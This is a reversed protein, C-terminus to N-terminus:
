RLIKDQRCIKLAVQQIAPLYEKLSRSMPFLVALINTRSDIRSNKSQTELLHLCAMQFNKKGTHFTVMLNKMFELSFPIRIGGLILFHRVSVTTSYKLLGKELFIRVVQSLKQLPTFQHIPRTLFKQGDKFIPEGTSDVRVSHFLKQKDEESLHTDWWGKLQGAFGAVLVHTTLQVSCNHSTRCTTAAM